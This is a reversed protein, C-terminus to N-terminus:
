GGYEFLSANIFDNDLLWGITERELRLAEIQGTLENVAVQNPHAMADADRSRGTATDESSHRYGELKAALTANRADALEEQLCALEFSVAIWRDRLPEWELDRYATWPQRNM